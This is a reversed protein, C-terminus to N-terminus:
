KLNNIDTDATIPHIPNRPGHQIDDFCFSSTSPYIAALPNIASGNAVCLYSFAPKHPGALTTEIKLWGGSFTRRVIFFITL